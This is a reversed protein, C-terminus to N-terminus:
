STCPEGCSPLSKFRETKDSRVSIRSTTDVLKSGKEAKTTILLCPDYELFLIQSPAGDAENIRAFSSITIGQLSDAESCMHQDVRM